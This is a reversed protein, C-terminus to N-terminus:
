QDEDKNENDEDDGTTVVGDATFSIGWATM